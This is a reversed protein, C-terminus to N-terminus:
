FFSTKSLELKQSRTVRKLLSDGDRLRTVSSMSPTIIPLDISEPIDLDTNTSPRDLAASQPQVGGGVKAKVRSKEVQM